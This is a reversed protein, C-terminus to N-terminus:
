HTLAQMNRHDSKEKNHLFHHAIEEKYFSIEAYLSSHNDPALASCITNWFGIRYFPIQKDPVYLWHIKNEICHNIGININLVSNCKLKHAAEKVTSSTDSKMRQLFHNLPM